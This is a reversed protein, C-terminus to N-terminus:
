SPIVNPEVRPRDPLKVRWNGNTAYDNALPKPPNDHVFKCTEGARCFGM